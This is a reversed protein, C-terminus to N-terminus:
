RKLGENIEILNDAPDRLLAVRLLWDPQDHPEAVVTVGKAKLEAFRADVDDVEFCLVTSDQADASEPKAGTKAAEAMLNRYFLAIEVGTGPVTFGTYVSEGDDSPTFGMIDKYFTYCAKFKDAPVLLRLQSWTTM